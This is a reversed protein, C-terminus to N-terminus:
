YLKERFITEVFRDFIIEIRIHITRRTSMDNDLCYSGAFSKRRDSAFSRAPRGYIFKLEDPEHM